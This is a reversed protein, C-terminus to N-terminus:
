NRSTEGTRDVSRDGVVIVEVEPYTQALFARV